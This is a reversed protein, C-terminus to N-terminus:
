LLKSCQRLNCLSIGDAVYFILISLFSNVKLHVGWPTVAISKMHSYIHLWEVKGRHNFKSYAQLTFKHETLKWFIRGIGTFLHKLKFNLKWAQNPISTLMKISLMDCCLEDFMLGICSNVLLAVFCVKAKKKLIWSLFCHSPGGKSKDCFIWQFNLGYIFPGIHVRRCFFTDVHM